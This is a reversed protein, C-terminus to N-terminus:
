KKRIIFTQGIELGGYGNNIGDISSNSKSDVDNIFHKRMPVAISWPFSGHLLRDDTSEFLNVLFKQEDTSAVKMITFDDGVSEVYDLNEIFSKLAGKDVNWGFHKTIGGSKKFWPSLYRNISRNLNLLSEGENDCHRFKVNCRVQLKDFFPNAVQVNVKKSIQSQLFRRINWLVSGSLCPDWQFTGDNFMPSVPVVLLSGPSSCDYRGSNEDIRVHPFCKVKYVEPFQELIMREYDEICVCHNKHYLSEAVRMRMKGDSEKPKGGFSEELQYVNSLGAISTKLETISQPKCRNLVKGDEFGCVREVELSQTLVTLLRSCERWSEGNPVIRIWFYGSPMLSSESVMDNPLSLTVIGSTTFRATSDALRNEDPLANWGLAGLYSWTYKGNEIGRTASDRNLMFYLNARRPRGAFQLGLYLAGSHLSFPESHSIGFPHVFIIGDSAQSSNSSFLIETDSTYDVYLDELSPTYPQNPLDEANKKKLVQSLFSNCVARSMEQHMFAKSPSVLKMKFFGEKMMPSYMFNEDEPIIESARSAVISNFSIKFEPSICEGKDSGFLWSKSTGSVTEFLNCTVDNEDSPLWTGGYLGSLSVIFDSTQPPNDYQAYWESFNKCNPLGCWKGHVDFTNLKKGCIEKCGVIFSSGVSPIAGFPQV